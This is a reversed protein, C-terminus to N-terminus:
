VFGVVKERELSAVLRDIQSRDNYLHCSVRIYWGGDFNVLPVEIKHNEWLNRQLSSWDGTPLPVESMSGYWEISDPVLASQKFLEELQFRAYRALEHTQGRFKELGYSQLFDIATPVSLYASSDRTGSWSFEQDWTEPMNPLLRGWSKVIPEMSEHHRPPVYLFGSGFPASIWKHCSATYFDCGLQDINLDLQALAHPGDVCVPIDTEKARLCIEEVPMIMATASTIHSVVLLRTRSTVKAFIAEIIQEPTEIQLPLQAIVLDANARECARKWIRQVAGYEHNNTLVEDGPQLVFNSAVVNMAFTANEVFVLNGADTGVFEALKKRADLLAPELQRVFFDMPQEDLRDSWARRAQQVCVPPPGFSGHNLYITDSRIKWHKAAENL